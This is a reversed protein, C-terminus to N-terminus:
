ARGKESEHIPPGLSTAPTWGPPDSAPMSEELVEDIYDLYDTPIITEREDEPADARDVDTQPPTPSNGSQPFDSM